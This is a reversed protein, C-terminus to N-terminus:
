KRRRPKKPADGETDGGNGALEDLSVGLVRALKKLTDM